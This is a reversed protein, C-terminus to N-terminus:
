PKRRLYAAALGELGDMVAIIDRVAVGTSSHLLTRIARDNLQGGRLKKIGESIALIHAAIVETAIEKTPQQVIKVPKTKMQEKDKRKM